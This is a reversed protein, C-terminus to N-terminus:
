ERVRPRLGVHRSGRRRRRRHRHHHARRRRAPERLGGRRRRPARRRGRGDGACPPARRRGTGPDAAAGGPGPLDSGGSGIVPQHRRRLRGREADLPLRLRHSRLRRGDGRQRVTRGGRRGREPHASGHWRRRRRCQGPRRPLRRRSGGAARHELLRGDARGDLLGAVRFLDKGHERPRGRAGILEGVSRPPASRPFTGIPHSGAGLGELEPLLHEALGAVGREGDLASWVLSGVPNLTIIETGAADILMARGDVIEYTVDPSRRPRM